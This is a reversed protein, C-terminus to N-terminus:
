GDEVLRQADAANQTIVLLPRARLALQALALADSSGHFAGACVRQGPAVRAMDPGPNGFGLVWGRGKREVRFLPGGPEHKDEPHGSDFVVGMGPRPSVEAAVPTETDLPSSM